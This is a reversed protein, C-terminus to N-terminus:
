YSEADNPYEANLIAAHVKNLVTKTEDFQHAFERVFRAKHGNNLGLFDQWVLVQGDCGKGAGIGITPIKLEKSIKEGLAAPVGEIVLSFCGAAELRLADELIKQAKEDNRGQVKFGGMTNVFQPTLGIHGMVPIGGEVFHKVIELNGDAGELKVAHAGAKLLAGAADVANDLGRRYTTFPMDGIIFKQSSKAKFGRAVAAIHASMMPIDAPLTSDYGYITMALSDGVLVCDIDSEAVILASSYDYCTVCSIKTGDLKKKAFDHINM